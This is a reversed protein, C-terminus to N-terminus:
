PSQARGVLTAQALQHLMPDTIPDAALLAMKAVTLADADRALIRTIWPAIATGLDDGTAVATLLGVDRAEQATWKEGGLILARARTAGVVRALLATGGAAPILGFEPEPLWFRAQPVAIRLDCALALELGGGVAAGNIAAISVPRCRRLRDFVAASQLRLVSRWDRQALEDRDAGACFSRNGTGTIVLVRVSADRDAVAIAADLADLLLATYANARTPRDLRLTRVPGDDSIQWQGPITASDTM